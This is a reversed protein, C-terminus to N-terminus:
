NAPILEIIDVNPAFTLDTAKIFTYGSGDASPETAFSSEAMVYLKALKWKKAM